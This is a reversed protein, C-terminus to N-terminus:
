AKVPGPLSIDSHIHFQTLALECIRKMQFSFPRGIFSHCFTFDTRPINCYYDLMGHDGDVGLAFKVM